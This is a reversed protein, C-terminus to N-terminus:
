RIIKQNYKGILFKVSDHNMTVMFTDPDQTSYIFINGTGYYPINDIRRQQFADNSDLTEILLLVSDITSRMTLLEAKIEKRLQADSKSDLIDMPTCALLLIFPLYKM